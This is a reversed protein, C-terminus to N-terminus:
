KAFKPNNRMLFDVFKLDLESDIDLSRERPMVYGSTGFAVFAENEVLFSSKAIYVAGNLAYVNPLEQRRGPIKKIRLLPKIRSNKDVLFMWFPSKEPETVSVCSQHGGSICQKICSDIDATTRLPSTPQLLVVFDFKEPLIRVAHLVPAIGPTRDRALSKPRIFPVECGWKRAVSIIESDESSLVVRDLYKSKRAAEITWAILPKGAVKRINKRKVGKSGGRAPIVALIKNNRYM